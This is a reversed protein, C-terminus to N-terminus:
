VRAKRKEGSVNSLRFDTKKGVRKRKRKTKERSVVLGSSRDNELKKM